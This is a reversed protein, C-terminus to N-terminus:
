PDAIDRLELNWWRRLYEDLASPDLRGVLVILERDERVAEEVGPFQLTIAVTRDVLDSFVHSALDSFWVRFGHDEGAEVRLYDGTALLDAADSPRNRTRERAAADMLARVEASARALADRGDRTHFANSYAAIRREIEDPELGDFM